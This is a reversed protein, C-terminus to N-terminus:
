DEWEEILEVVKESYGFCYMYLETDISLDPYIDKLTLALEFDSDMGEMRCLGGPIKEVLDYYTGVYVDTCLLPIPEYKSKSGNSVFEAKFYEGIDIKKNSIRITSKKKHNVIDDYYKEDFKLVKM